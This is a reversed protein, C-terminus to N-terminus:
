LPPTYYMLSDGYRTGTFFLVTCSSFVSTNKYVTWACFFASGKVRDGWNLASGKKIPALALALPPSRRIRRKRPFPNPLLM